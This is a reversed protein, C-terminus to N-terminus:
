MKVKEKEKELLRRLETASANREEGQAKLMNELHKKVVLNKVESLDVKEGDVIRGILDRILDAQGASGVMAPIGDNLSAGGPLNHMFRFFKHDGDKWTVVGASMHTRIGDAKELGAKKRMEHCMAATEPVTGFALYVVGEVADDNAPGGVLTIMRDTYVSVTIEGKANVDIVYDRMKDSYGDNPHYKFGKGDSALTFHVGVDTSGAPPKAPQARHYKPNYGPTVNTGLKPEVLQDFLVSKLVNVVFAYFMGRNENDAHLKAPLQMTPRGTKTCKGRVAGPLTAASSM